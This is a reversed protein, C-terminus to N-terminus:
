NGAKTENTFLQISDGIQKLTSTLTLGREEGDIEIIGEADQDMDAGIVWINRKPDASVLDKAESFVGNGSDGAAQFIIDTDAAYIAAALQRGRPADAFSGVYEVTVVIDPNVAEAGDVCGAECRDLVIGVVGGIFGVINTEIVSAAAVGALFAAENDQFNLSDVNPQDVVYDIIAFQQDPY